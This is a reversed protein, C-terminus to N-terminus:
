RSQSAIRAQARRADERVPQVRILEDLLASAGSPDTRSLAMAMRVLPDYAPRFDPSERLVAMLPEHVQALMDAVRATPVVDRGSAIYRNRASWYAALRRADSDETDSALLEGPAVSVGALLAVLRDRPRSDPAYTIRPARYAVVPADDTNPPADGAFRRLSRSDAIFSGLLAFEDELGFAALGTPLASTALRHRISAIHFPADDARGVLGIVPTDLSNSALIAAGEPFAALFSRVISRMTDLDLQHLPLWQCFLGGAALRARVARFHEVTYLAGSGSRAPHFNDSVIVDYRRSATRVYRRADAAIRHPGAVPQGQEVEPVFLTSAAIVEPLLEVADVSLTPDEAAVSATIGTGLGLFLAHHPAPHLLLPLLAQRGDVLRSASDGEQQRNNIRLRLVGDTDETVSVAATAGEDYRVVHGGEPVDVFALAPAFAALAATTAAPIWPAPRQWARLSVLALYGAAIMLLALKPGLMPAIVVGFVLPAGAAGLTNIGIARGFSVGEVRAQSALHSFLAGMALTPAGFAVAALLAEGSLASAMTPGWQAAWWARLVEAAWLSASGALCALALVCLLRDGTRRADGRSALWRHYAAAGMSTGLLYIALLIAFTFLTDEAVQSLVRVVCVEYGIGFLGTAALRWLAARAEPSTAMSIVTSRTTSGFATLSVVACALNLAVCIAVCRVLGFAPIMWFTTVVVGLVAGFTNAAYLSAISRARLGSRSVIREIAPLTAGMAMTAPALLVFTGCFAVAWQWPAGPQEGTLDLMAGGVRPLIAILVLGWAAIAAECAAYWRVPRESREIRPGLWLAGVGLGGFFAAVVALVAAAEHGLWLGCQQVWVVQYGLGAFGSATMLAHAIRGRRGRDAISVATDFHVAAM